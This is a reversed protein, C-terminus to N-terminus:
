EAELYGMFKRSVSDVKWCIVRNAAITMTEATSAVTPATM